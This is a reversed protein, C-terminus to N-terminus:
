HSTAAAELRRRANKPVTAISIPKGAGSILKRKGSLGVRRLGASVCQGSIVPFEAMFALPGGVGLRSICFLVEHLIEPPIARPPRVARRTSSMISRNISLSAGLGRLVPNPSFAGAVAASRLLGRRSRPIRITKSHYEEVIRRYEARSYLFEEICELRYYLTM